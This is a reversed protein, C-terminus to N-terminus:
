GDTFYLTNENEDFHEAIGELLLRVAVGYAQFQADTLFLDRGALPIGVKNVTYMGPHDPAFERLTPDEFLEPRLERLKRASSGDGHKVTNALLRLEDVAHWGRLSKLNIRFNDAYWTVLESLKTDAPPKATFAGDICIDALQQELLHFLGVAYLCLSAQRLGVMMGHFELGKEHAAEALGSLDGDCDQPAPLSCLRDYETDMVKRARDDLNAFAPLVDNVVITSYHGLIDSTAHRVRWALYRGIVPM